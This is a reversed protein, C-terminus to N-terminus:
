IWNYRISEQPVKSNSQENNNAAQDECWRVTMLRGHRLPTGAPQKDILKKVMNRKYTAANYLNAEIREEMLSAHIPSASRSTQADVLWNFLNDFALRGAQTQPQQVRPSSCLM